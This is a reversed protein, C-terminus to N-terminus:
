AIHGTAGSCPRFIAALRWDEGRAKQVFYSSMQGGSQCLFGLDIPNVISQEALKGSLEEAM